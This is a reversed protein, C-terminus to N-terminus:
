TRRNRAIIDSRIVVVLGLFIVSTFVYEVPIISVLAIIVLALGLFGFGLFVNKAIAADEASLDGEKKQSRDTM